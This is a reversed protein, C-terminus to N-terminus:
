SYKILSLAKMFSLNVEDIDHEDETKLLQALTFPSPEYSPKQWSYWKRNKKVVVQLPQCRAALDISPAPLLTGEGVSKCFKIAAAEFM